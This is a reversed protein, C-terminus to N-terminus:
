MKSTQLLFCYQKLLQASTYPKSDIIRFLSRSHLGLNSGIKDRGMRWLDSNEKIERLRPAMSQIERLLIRETKRCHSREFLMEIFSVQGVDYLRCLRTRELDATGTKPLPLPHGLGRATEHRGKNPREVFPSSQASLVSKTRDM